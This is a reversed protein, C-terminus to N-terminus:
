PFFILPLLPWVRLSIFVTGELGRAYSVVTGAQTVVTATFEENTFQQSPPFEQQSMWLVDGESM